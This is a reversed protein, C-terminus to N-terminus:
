CSRRVPLIIEAINDARVGSGPMIIIRDAAQEIIQKLIDSGELATAHLGSSLIRTCGCNIVTELAQQWDAVRDFARHFTFEMPYAMSVLKTTREEDISGDSKLLGSVVGDCGLEKCKLIDTAIIEFEDQNYLFDGGRPRIIPFLQIQTCKRAEKIMGYSATTGGEGPNACLEIRDAGAAEILRCSNIDFAIIELM